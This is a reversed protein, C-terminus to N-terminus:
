LRDSEPPLRWGGMPGQGPMQWDFPLAIAM